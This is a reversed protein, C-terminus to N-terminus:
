KLIMGLGANAVLGMQRLGNLVVLLLGSASFNEKDSLM